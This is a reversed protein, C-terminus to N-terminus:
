CGPDLTSHSEQLEPYSFLCYSSTLSFSWVQFLLCDTWFALLSPNSAGATGLLLELGDTHLEHSPSHPLSEPVLLGRCLPFMKDELGRLRHFVPFEEVRWLCGAKRVVATWAVHPLDTRKWYLSGLDVRLAEQWYDELLRM